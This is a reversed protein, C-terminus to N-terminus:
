ADSYGFEEFIGTIVRSKKKANTRWGRGIRDLMSADHAYQLATRGNSDEVLPDAGMELLRRIIPSGQDSHWARVARHLSTLSDESREEKIPLNLSASYEIAKELLRTDRTQIAISLMANTDAGHALMCEFIAEREPARSRQVIYEFPSQWGQYKQNPDAGKRLLYEITELDSGLVAFHLSTALDDRNHHISREWTGHNEARDKSSLIDDIWQTFGILCAIHLRPREPEHEELPLDSFHHLTNYVYFQWWCERPESRQGFFYQNSSIWSTALTGCRKAHEPWFEQAYRLRVLATDGGLAMLCRDAMALHSEAKKIRASEVVPDDDPETRLLYDKASQHVLVVKEGQVSILPKCLSIHDQAARDPTLQSPVHWQVADALEEVSLSRMALAVWRLISICIQLKDAAINRIMRSYLAPLAAPLEELAELVQMITAKTLLESVAYGIWLFTGESKQLLQKQIQLSLDESLNHRRTLDEMKKSTFTSIDTEVKDNNDPDLLIQRAQRLELIDRSVVCIRMKVMRPGCYLGALHSAIWRISDHDCEDLGDILCYMPTMTPDQALETFIEFLIGPTSLVDQTREPSEFYPLVLSALEPRKAMMQWILARLIASPTSNREDESNCFYYIINDRNKGELTQTLFVSMMTKGKGADGCIWLLEPDDQLWSQYTPDELIWECTGAVREGKRDLLRQRDIEPDTLFLSKRCREESTEGDAAAATDQTENASADLRSDM